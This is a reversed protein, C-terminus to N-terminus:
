ISLHIEQTTNKTQRIRKEEAPEIKLEDDVEEEDDTDEDGLAVRKEIEREGEGQCRM